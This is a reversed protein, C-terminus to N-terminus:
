SANIHSIFGISMGINTSYQVKVNGSKMNKSVKLQKPAAMIVTVEHKDMKIMSEIYDRWSTGQKFGEGNYNNFSTMWKMPVENLFELM